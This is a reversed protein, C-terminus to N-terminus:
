NATAEKRRQAWVMIVYILDYVLIALALSLVLVHPDFLDLYLDDNLSPCVPQKSYWVRLLDLADFNPCDFQHEYLVRLYYALSYLATGLMKSLAISLSQGRLSRRAYLMTIFLVAMLLNAGFASYYGHGDNFAWTIMLIAYFSTVLALGFMAYFTSKALGVFERPGHKLLQYVIVLDLSFWVCHVVLYPLNKTPNIDTPKIIFSFIYEWSINACLAVLPMGYTQDLYGRRIILIYTLAWVVGGTLDLVTPIDLENFVM